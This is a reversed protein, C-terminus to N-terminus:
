EVVKPIHFQDMVRRPANMLAEDQTLGLQPQDPRMVDYVPTPHASPEADLSHSSIQDLHSLISTLQAHFHEAEQETLALRALKAVHHIDIKPASM